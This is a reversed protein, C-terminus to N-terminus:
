LKSFTAKWRRWRRHTWEEDACPSLKQCRTKASDGFERGVSDALKEVRSNRRLDGPGHLEHESPTQHDDFHQIQRLEDGSIRSNRRREEGMRWLHRMESGKKVRREESLESADVSDVERVDPLSTRLELDLRHHEPDAFRLREEKKGGGFLLNTGETSREVAKASYDSIRM